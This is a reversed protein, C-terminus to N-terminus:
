RAANQSWPLFLGNIKLRMSIAVLALIKRCSVLRCVKTVQEFGM